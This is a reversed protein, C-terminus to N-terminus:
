WVRIFKNQKLIKRLLNKSSSLLAIRKIFDAYNYTTMNYGDKTNLNIDFKNWIKTLILIDLYQKFLLQLYAKGNLSRINQYLGNFGTKNCDLNNFDETTQLVTTPFEIINKKDIYYQEM